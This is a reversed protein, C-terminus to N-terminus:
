GDHLSLVSCFLSSNFSPFASKCFQPFGGPGCIAHESLPGLPYFQDSTFDVVSCMLLSPLSAEYKYLATFKARHTPYATETILLPAAGLWATGFGVITRAAIFVSSNQATAQLVAGLLMFFTGIYLPMKRGFRNSVWALPPYGAIGGLASTANIFGLWAGTPHNMFTQWEPLTQLGNMMSADYGLAASYLLVFFLLGNLKLLHRTRVNRTLCFRCDRRDRLLSSTGVAALEDGVTHVIDRHQKEKVHRIEANDRESTM